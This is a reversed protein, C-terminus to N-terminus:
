LTLSLAVCRLYKVLRLKALDLENTDFALLNGVDFDVELHKEVTIPKFKEADKAARQLVENVIDM